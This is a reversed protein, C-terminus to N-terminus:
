LRVIAWWDGTLDIPMQTIGISGIASTEAQNVNKRYLTIVATATGNNVGCSLIITGGTIITASADGGATLEGSIFGVDGRFISSRDTAGTITSTFAM